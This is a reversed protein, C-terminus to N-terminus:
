HTQRLKPGVHSTPILPPSVPPYSTTPFHLMDPFLDPFVSSGTTLLYSPPEWFERHVGTQPESGWSYGDCAECHKAGHPKGTYVSEYQGPHTQAVKAGEEM